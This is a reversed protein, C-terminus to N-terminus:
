PLYTNCYSTNLDSCSMDFTLDGISTEMATTDIYEIVMDEVSLDASIFSDNLKVQELSQELSVSRRPLPSPIFSIDRAEVKEKAEVKVPKAPPTVPHITIDIDEGEELKAASQEQYVPASAHRGGKRTPVRQPVRPKKVTTTNHGSGAQLPNEWVPIGESCEINAAPQLGFFDSIQSGQKSSNRFRSM